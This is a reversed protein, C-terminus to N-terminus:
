EGTDVGVLCAWGGLGCVIARVLMAWVLTRRFEPSSVDLLFAKEVELVGTLGGGVVVASEAELENSLLMLALLRWRLMLLRRADESTVLNVEKEVEEKARCWPPFLERSNEGEKLIKLGHSPPSVSIM